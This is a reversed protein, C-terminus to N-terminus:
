PPPYQMPPAFPFWHATRAIIMPQCQIAVVKISIVVLIWRVHNVMPVGNCAALITAIVELALAYAALVAALCEAQVAQRAKRLFGRLAKVEM